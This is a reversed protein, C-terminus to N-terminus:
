CLIIRDRESISLLSLIHGVKTQFAKKSNEAEENGCLEKSWILKSCKTIIKSPFFDIHTDSKKSDFFQFNEELEIKGIESNLSIFNNELKITDDDVLKGYFHGYNSHDVSGYPTETTKILPFEVSSFLEKPPSKDLTEISVYKNVPCYIVDERISFKSSILEINLEFNVVPWLPSRKLASSLLYSLVM